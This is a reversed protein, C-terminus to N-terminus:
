TREFRTGVHENGAAEEGADGKANENANDMTDTRECGDYGM